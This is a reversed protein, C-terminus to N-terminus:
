ERLSKGINGQTQVEKKRTEVCKTHKYTIGM